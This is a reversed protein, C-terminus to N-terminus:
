LKRWKWINLSRNTLPAKVYVTIYTHGDCRILVGRTKLLVLTGTFTREPVITIKAGEWTDEPIEMEPRVVEVKDGICCDHGFDDKRIFLGQGFIQKTPIVKKILQIRPDNSHMYCDDNTEEDVFWIQNGNISTVLTNFKDDVRIEDGPIFIRKELAKEDCKCGFIRKTHSTPLLDDVFIEMVYKDKCKPCPTEVQKM